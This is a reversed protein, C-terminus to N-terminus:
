IQYNTFIYIYINKKVSIAGKTYNRDFLLVISLPIAQQNRYVAVFRFRDADDHYGLM